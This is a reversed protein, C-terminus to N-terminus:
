MRSSKWNKTKANGTSLKEATIKRHKEEKDKNHQNTKYLVGHILKNFYEKRRSTIKDKDTETWKIMNM